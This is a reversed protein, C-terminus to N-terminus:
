GALTLIALGVAIGTTGALPGFFAGMLAALHIGLDRSGIAVGSVAGGIASAATAILLIVLPWLYPAAALREM